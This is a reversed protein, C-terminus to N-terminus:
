IDHGKKKMEERVRAMFTVSIERSWGEMMPGLNAFLTPQLDVYKKGTASTFFGDADKLEQENMLAAFINAAGNIIKDTSQMLEPQLGNLVIRMDNILEPRTATVTSNIQGMTQLVTASFSRSLGSDVVLKRALDIQAQTPAAVQKQTQAHVPLAALFAVVALARLSFVSM